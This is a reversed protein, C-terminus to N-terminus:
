VRKEDVTPTCVSWPDYDWSNTTTGGANGTNHTKLQFKPTTFARIKM